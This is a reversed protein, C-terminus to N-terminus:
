LAVELFYHWATVLNKENTDAVELWETTVGGSSELAEQLDNLISNQIDLPVKSYYDVQWTLRQSHRKNSLRHGVNSVLNFIIYPFANTTFGYAVPVNGAGKKLANLVKHKSSM